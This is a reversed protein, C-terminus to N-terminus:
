NYNTGPFTGLDINAVTGCVNKRRSVCHSGEDDKDIRFVFLRQRIASDIKAVTDCSNEKRILIIRM